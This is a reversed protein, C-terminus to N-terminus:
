RAGVQDFVIRGATMTLVPRATAIRDPPLSWPDNGLAV